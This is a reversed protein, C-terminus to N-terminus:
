TVGIIALGYRCFGLNARYVGALHIRKLHSTEGSADTVKIIEDLIMQVRLSLWHLSAEGMIQSEGGHFDRPEQYRMQIM